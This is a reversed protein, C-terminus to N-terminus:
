LPGDLDNSHVCVEDIEGCKVGGVGRGPFRLSFILGIDRDVLLALSDGFTGEDRKVLHFYEHSM